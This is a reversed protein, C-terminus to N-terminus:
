RVFLVHAAVGCWMAISLAVGVRRRAIAAILGGLVWYESTARMFSWDEIWFGADLIAILPIYLAFALLLPFRHGRLVAAGCQAVVLAIVFLAAIEVDTLIPFPRPVAFSHMLGSFPISFHGTGLSPAAHWVHFLTFKFGLQAAIAILVAPAAFASAAIALLATEKALAACTAVIPGLVTRHSEIALITTVLLAVEVIEACDRTMTIIWGPYMWVAASWWANAGSKEVIRASSWALLGVAAINIILIANPIARANGGTVAWAVLPMLIRQQRYTPVDLRMGNESWQHTFPDLALRYYFQGDYGASHREVPIPVRRADTFQDGAVVLTGADFGRKSLLLVAFACAIAMAALACAVAAHLRM